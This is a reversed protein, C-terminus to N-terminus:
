TILTKLLRRAFESGEPLFTEGPTHENMFGVSLNLCDRNHIRGLVSCDTMSGQVPRGGNKKAWDSWLAESLDDYFAM